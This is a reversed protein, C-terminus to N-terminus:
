RRAPVAATRHRITLSATAQGSGGGSHSSGFSLPLSRRCGRPSLGTPGAAAGMAAVAAAAAARVGALTPRRAPALPGRQLLPRRICTIGPPPPRSGGASSRGSAPVLCRARRRSTSSTSSTPWARCSAGCPLSSGSACTAGMVGAPPTPITPPSLPPPSVHGRACTKETVGAPPPPPVSYGGGEADYRTRVM